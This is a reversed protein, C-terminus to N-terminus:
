LNFAGLGRQSIQKVILGAKRRAIGVIHFLDAVVQAGKAEHLGFQTVRSPEGQANSQEAVGM